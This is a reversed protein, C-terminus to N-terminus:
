AIGVSAVGAAVLMLGLIVLITAFRLLRRRSGGAVQDIKLYCYVLALFFLVLALFGGASWLRGALRQHDWAEDIISNAERDFKVLAHVRVFEGLSLSLPEVWVDAGVLSDRLYDSELHVKQGARAGLKLKTRVYDAVAGNLAVPLAEEEAEALDPRPDTAVPWYYVSGEKYPKRDVWAPRNDEPLPAVSLEATGSQQPKEVITATEKAAEENAPQPAESAASTDEDSTAAEDPKSKAEEQDAKDGVEEAATSADAEVADESGKRTRPDPPLAIDSEVDPEPTDASEEPKLEEIQELVAVPRDVEVPRDVPYTNRHRAVQYRATGMFLGFLGGVLVVLLMLAAAAGFLTKAVDRTKPNTLLAVLGLVALFVLAALGALAFLGLFSVAMDGGGAHM